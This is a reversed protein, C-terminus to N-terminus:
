VEEYENIYFEHEDSAAAEAVTKFDTGFTENIWELVDAETDFYETGYEEHYVQYRESFYKSDPDSVEFIGCGPEETVFYVAYIPSEEITGDEEQESLIRQILSVGESRTWKSDETFRLIAIDPDQPSSVDQAGTWSARLNCCKYESTAEVEEKTMIGAAAIIDGVWQYDNAEIADHLRKIFTPEGEIVFDTFCNNAM